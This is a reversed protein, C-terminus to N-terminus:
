TMNRELTWVQHALDTYQSM